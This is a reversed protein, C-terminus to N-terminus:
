YPLKELLGTQEAEDLLADCRAFLDRAERERHEQVADWLAKADRSAAKLNGAHLGRLVANKHRRIAEHEERLPRLSPELSPDKAAAAPFLFGEEWLFHRELRRAFEEFGARPVMEKDFRLASFLSMTQALDKAFRQTVSEFGYTTMM